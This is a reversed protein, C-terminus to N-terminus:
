LVVYVYSALCSRTFISQIIPAEGLCGLRGRHNEVCVLGEREEDEAGEWGWIRFDGGVVATGMANIRAVIVVVVVVAVSMRTVLRFKIVVMQHKEKLKELLVRTTVPQSWASIINPLLSWSNKAGKNRSERAVISPGSRRPSNEM